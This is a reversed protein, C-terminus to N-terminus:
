QFNQGGINSVFIPRPPAPKPVIPAPNIKKEAKHALGITCCAIMDGKGERYRGARDNTAPFETQDFDDEREYIVM